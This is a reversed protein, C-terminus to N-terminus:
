NINRKIKSACYAKLEPLTEHQVNELAVMDFSALCQHCVILHCEHPEDNVNNDCWDLQEDNCIPCLPLEPNM